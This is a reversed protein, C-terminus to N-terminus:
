ILGGFAKKLSSDVVHAIFFVFVPFFIIFIIM